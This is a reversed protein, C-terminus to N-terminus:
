CLILRGLPGLKRWAGTPEYCKDIEALFEKTVPVTQQWKEKFTEVCDMCAMASIEPAGHLVHNPTWPGNEFQWGCSRIEREFARAAAGVELYGDRFGVVHVGAARACYRVQAILEPNEYLKPPVSLTKPAGRMPHNTKNAWARAMFGVLDPKGQRPYLEAYFVATDVDVAIIKSLMVRRGCTRPDLDKKQYHIQSDAGSCYLHKSDTVAIQQLRNPVAREGLFERIIANQM